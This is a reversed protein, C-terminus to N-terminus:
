VSLRRHLAYACAGTLALDCDFTGLLFVLHPSGRTSFWHKDPYWSNQSLALILAFGGSADIWYARTGVTAPKKVLLAWFAGTFYIAWLILACFFQFLQKGDGFTEQSQNSDTM